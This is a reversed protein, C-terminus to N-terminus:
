EQEYASSESPTSDFVAANYAAGTMHYEGTAGEEIVDDPFLNNVNAAHAASQQKQNDHVAKLVGAVGGLVVGAGYIGALGKITAKHRQWWSKPKEKKKWSKTASDWVANENFVDPM